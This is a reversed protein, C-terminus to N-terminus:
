TNDSCCPCPDGWTLCPIGAERSLNHLRAKAGTLTRKEFRVRDTDLKLLWADRGIHQVNLIFANRTQLLSSKDRKTNGSYWRHMLFADLYFDGEACFNSASVDLGHLMRAYFFPIRHHLSTEGSLDNVVREPLM